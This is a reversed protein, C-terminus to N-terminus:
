YCLLLIPILTSQNRPEGHKMEEQGVPHVMEFICIMTCTLTKDNFLFQSLSLSLTLLKSFFYCIFTTQYLSLYFYNFSPYIRRHIFTSSSVRNSTLVPSLAHRNLTWIYICGIYECICVSEYNLLTRMNVKKECMWKRERERGGYTYM